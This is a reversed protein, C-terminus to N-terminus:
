PQLTQMRRREAVEHSTDEVPALQQMRQSEAVDHSDDVQPALGSLRQGEVFEHSTDGEPALNAFRQSEVTQHSTDVAVQTALAGLRQAEVFEHSGDGTADGGLFPVAAVLAAAIIAAVGLVPTSRRTKTEITTTDGQVTNPRPDLEISM